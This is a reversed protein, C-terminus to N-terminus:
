GAKAARYDFKGLLLIGHQNIERILRAGSSALRKVEAQSYDLYNLENGTANQIALTLRFLQDQWADDDERVRNPRVILLDIDSGKKATGKAVSGFLVVAEPKPSFRSLQRTILSVLLEKPQTLSRLLPYCLHKSNISYLHASGLIERDVLGEEVLEQLVEFVRSKGLRDVLQLALQRGTVPKATRLLEELIMAHSGPFIGSLNNKFDM